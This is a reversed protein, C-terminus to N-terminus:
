QHTQYLLNSPLPELQGHKDGRRSHQHLTSDPIFVLFNWQVAPLDICCKSPSWARCCLAIHSFYHIHLDRRKGTVFRKKILSVRYGMGALEFDIGSLSQGECVFQVAAPSPSAPGSAMVFKARICGTGGDENMDSIDNLRWVAQKRDGSRCPLFFCVCSLKVWIHLSFAELSLKVIDSSAVNPRFLLTYLTSKATHRVAPCAWM